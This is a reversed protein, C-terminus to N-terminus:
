APDRKSTAQSFDPKLEPDVLVALTAANLLSTVQRQGLRERMRRLQEVTVGEKVGGNAGVIRTVSEALMHLSVEDAAATIEAARKAQRKEHKALATPDPSGPLDAIADPVKGAAHIEEIRSPELARVYWTAKSDVWQRYIERGEEELSELTPEGLSADGGGTVKVIKRRREWDEIAAALDPRSYIAVSHETVAGGDIWDDLDFDAPIPAEELITTNLGEDTM